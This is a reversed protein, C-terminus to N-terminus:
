SKLSYVRVVKEGSTLTIHLQVALPTNTNGPLLPWSDVWALDTTLYHLTFERVNRLVPYRAPLKNPVVDLSSWLWLEIENNANLTYGIHRPTGSDNLSPFRSFEIQPVRQSDTSGIWTSVNGTATRAPYSASLQIDQEFRALFTTVGQWKKTESSVQERATLVASLGRYSILAMASLIFLAVLVEILTFGKHQMTLDAKM